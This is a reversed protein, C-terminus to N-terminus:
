FQQGFQFQFRQLNDGPQNNIPQAVSVKLPGMPSIWMVAIGASYRLGEQEPRVGGSGYVTGGDIFASLRVTRDNRMGPMPFMIEANGVVRTNGGLARNNADRPGLSSINYGRVSTNGGAFFNKFFPLDKGAYGDGYGVDGHLLLTFLESIPYYWKLDYNVKYYTLDGGPLGAEAFVRQTTGSTTWIASDRGDRRWSVTVPINITSRGFKEVFDINRQPSNPGLDIVTNEIGLGTMISDNENLPIGARIGAGTTDTNFNMVSSLTSTNLVRKYLDFGATVGDRTFYPDTYSLSYTKNVRGTNIMLNVLKGTGFINDQAISGSLILGEMNSYGAGFMVAGTPKEKVEVNVDVQDTTGPVAPTELNVATFYNLRDVRVKSRNIKSTSYWSGEFQRMERRIVEDRTRSNGTINIRRVYVRRGPDVFFTFAVQQKEKDLQPSANVNAFAYGDDGLRDTILKVSETLRERSFVEGPALKILSRLEDEPVLMEGALKIESVKYEPGEAINVTIYIDQMDPTISVQTSEISFELYGRNLYYSRLSELDGSLKQKSYQDEKTFWTLLGPTRLSFTSLLEKEKFAKNGVINIKRIKATKGEDVHFSIGVRNRDLPTTTTTIKVAYKGRSIYQQKLEQEAKELTSRDFIRSEALGAQKLGEKLKDKEFEKAGIINIQAIAPREEVVVILVGDESELRVDKFFGTAYLVKIAAAAKEDDLTDGVKVPLYSFVTGAETRQIGEVRIDKVVFPERAWSVSACFVSVLAVLHKVKM